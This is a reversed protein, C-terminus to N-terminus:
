LFILLENRNRLRHILYVYSVPGIGGLAIKEKPPPRLRRLALLPKGGPM